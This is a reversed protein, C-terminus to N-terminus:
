RCVGLNKCKPTQLINPALTERLVRKGVVESTDKLLNLSGFNCVVLKLPYLVCSSSKWFLRRNTDEM